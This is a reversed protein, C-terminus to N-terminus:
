KEKKFIKWKSIKWLLWIIFLFSAIGLVVRISFAIIGLLIIVGPVVIFVLFLILIIWHIPRM